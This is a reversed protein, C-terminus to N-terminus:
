VFRRVRSRYERYSDGFKRDLYREERLVVGVHMTLLLPVLVVLGWWTNAVLTLGIYLLTLAVYLPNRSYRFPGATVIAKAPLGPNINTGAAQMTLRGWRAIGIAAASVLLGSPVAIAWTTIPLPAILRAIVVLLFAGGYLFPPLAIVGPNDPAAPAQSFGEGEM